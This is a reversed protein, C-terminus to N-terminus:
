ESIVMPRTEISSGSASQIETRFFYVGPALASRNFKEKYIGADKRENNIIVAIKEAMANYLSISVISSETM